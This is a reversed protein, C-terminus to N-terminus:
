IKVVRTVYEDTGSKLQFLYSGNKLMGLDLELVNRLTDMAVTRGTMDLIKVEFVEPSDVTIHIMGESPNPFVNFGLKKDKQKPVSLPPACADPDTEPEIGTDGGACDGCVDIIATGDKVGNCDYTLDVFKSLLRIYSVQYGCSNETVSWSNQPWSTNWDKYSKQDPQDLPPSLDSTDCKDNNGSGGCNGPCCGDVNYSPNPGGVLFGPAPGYTSEGVRDWKASGDTFWTHYFENVCNEGGYEYMNSLYVMNLPNAGHLYHIYNLAAEHADEEKSADVDFTILNYFMSGQKSKTNNSGWTYSSMHSRYPDQDGYYAPFNDGSNAMSSKYINLIDNVVVPTADSITTYHLLMEQNEAQYPYVYNWDIMQSEAYNADFFDRYQSDGSIDFLFCAAEVKSMLRQYESEEQQGAGIGQTGHESSNNYFLVEPNAVAWDWAAIAKEQLLDAYEEMGLSRYVKSSIALAGATNLSASTTSPGYLSRATAATPPSAHDEDVICLVGGDDEQLRLLHDVGWKAEDLIDPIGNGSEPINYDDGWAEPKDLYAGMLGVVYNATWSTYKNYDGADYWGGTLDRESQPNSTENYLRANPDQGNGMHSAGDAWEAGAYQAAKEHGVRQYFFTRMAHKLVDNYVSHSIEFTFSRVNQSKDLVYYEGIDTVESFDFWWAKDGSSANTRGGNWRTIDASFVEEKSAADVLAYTNGPAFSQSADFGTQPDRIIAVKTSNPLYGFQDVVIFQSTTQAFLLHPLIIGLSLCVRKIM